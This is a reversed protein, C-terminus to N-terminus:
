VAQRHLWTFLKDLTIILPKNPFSRFKAESSTMKSSTLVLHVGIINYRNSHKWNPLASRCEKSKVKLRRQIFSNLVPLISTTISQWLYKAISKGLQSRLLLCSLNINRYTEVTFPKPWNQLFNYYEILNPSCCQNYIIYKWYRTDVVTM